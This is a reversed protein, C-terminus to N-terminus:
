TARERHQGAGLAHLEVGDVIAYFQETIPGRGCQRREGITQFGTPYV